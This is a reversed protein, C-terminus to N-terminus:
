TFIQDLNSLAGKEASQRNTHQRLDPYKSCIVAERIAYSSAFCMPVPMKHPSARALTGTGMHPLSCRALVPGNKRSQILDLSARVMRLLSGTWRTADILLPQIGTLAAQHGSERTPQAVVPFHGPARARHKNGCFKVNTLRWYQRNEKKLKQM